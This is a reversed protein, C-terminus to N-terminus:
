SDSSTEVDARRAIQVGLAGLAVAALLLPPGNLQWGVFLGLVYGLGGVFALGCVAMAAYDVAPRLAPTVCRSDAFFVMTGGIGFPVNGAAFQFDFWSKFAAFSGPSDNALKPLASGMLSDFVFAPIFAVFILSWAVRELDPIRPYRRRSLLALAAAAVLMDGIFIVRGARTMSSGRSTAERLADPYSSPAAPLALDNPLLAYLVVGVAFVLSGVALLLGAVRFDEGVASRGSV